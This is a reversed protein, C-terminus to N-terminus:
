QYPLFPNDRGPEVTPSLKTYPILTKFDERDLVATNLGITRIGRLISITASGKTQITTPAEPKRLIGFYVVTSTIVFVLSLVIILNRQKKRQETVIAM